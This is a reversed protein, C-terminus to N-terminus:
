DGCCSDSFFEFTSCSRNRCVKRLFFTALNILTGDHADRERVKISRAPEPSAPVAEEARQWLGLRSKIGIDVELDLPRSSSRSRNAIPLFGGQSAMQAWADVRNFLKAEAKLLPKVDGDIAIGSSQPRWLESVVEGHAKSKVPESERGAAQFDTAFRRVSRLEPSTLPRGFKRELSDQVAEVVGAM